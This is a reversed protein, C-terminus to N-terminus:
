LIKFEKVPVVVILPPVNFKDPVIAALLETAMVPPVSVPVPVADATVTVDPVIMGPEVAVIPVSVVPATVSDAPVVSVNSRPLRPLLLRSATPPCNVRGVEPAGITTLRKLLLLLPPRPM